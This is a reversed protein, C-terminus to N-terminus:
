ISEKRGVDVQGIVVNTLIGRRISMMIAKGAHHRFFSRGTIQATLRSPGRTFELSHSPSLVLPKCIKVPPQKLLFQNAHIARFM